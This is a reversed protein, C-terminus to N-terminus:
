EQAEFEAFKIAKVVNNLGSKYEEVKFSKALCAYVEMQTQTQAGEAWFQATEM